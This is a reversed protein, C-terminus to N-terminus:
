GRRPAPWRSLALGDRAFEEPEFGILAIVRRGDEDTLLLRETLRGRRWGRPERTGELRLDAGPIEMVARGDPYLAAAAVPGAAGSFLVRVSGDDTIERLEQAILPGAAGGRLGVIRAGVGPSHNFAALPALLTDDLALLRCGCGRAAPGSQSRLCQAMAAEAVAAPPTDPGGGVVGLGPCREPPDGLALARADPAALYARGWGTGYLLAAARAEVRRGAPASPRSVLATVADGVRTTDAADTATIRPPNDIVLLQQDGPSMPVSPAGITCGTALISVIIISLNLNQRPEKTSKQM